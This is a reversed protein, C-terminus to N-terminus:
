LENGVPSLVNQLHSGDGGIPGDHVERRAPDDEVRLVVVLLFGDETGVLVVIEEEGHPSGPGTKGDSRLEEVLDIGCRLSLWRYKQSSRVDQTCENSM